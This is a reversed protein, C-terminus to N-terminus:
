LRTISRNVPKRPFRFAFAIKGRQLCAVNRPKTITLRFFKRARGRIKLTFTNRTQKPSATRCPNSVTLGATRTFIRLDVASDLRRANVSASILRM